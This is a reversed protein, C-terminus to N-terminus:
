KLSYELFKTLENKDLVKSNAYLQIASYAAASGFLLSLYAPAGVKFFLSMAALMNDGTGVKDIVTKCFSPCYYFKNNKVNFYTLGKKGSTIVLHNIVFKKCLVKSLKEISEFKNRLENRLETENIILFNIKKFKNLSHYGINASNIQTNLFLKNSFKTILKATTDTIFGHGYDSVIVLDAKKIKKKIEQNLKKIENFLLNEENLSYLGFIKNYNVSDLYRKKLITPSNKKYIFIKNINKKLNKRVFSEYEKNEGLMSIFDVKKCFVSINNAIAAAGGLYDSSNKPKFTLFPDKGSKGLSECFNYQDIITEGIVLVRNKEIKKLYDKLSNSNYYKQTIKFYNQQDDTFIKVNSNIIKSSSFQVEDTFIIKGKNKKVAKEELFINKTIDSKRIKYDQGKIYYNPKVINIVDIATENNNIFVFDIEKLSSLYQARIKDTFIPKGLGKKVYSDATISVVLVDGFEKAKQFHKIHGFHVIDFVGHCLSVKVKKKKLLNIKKQLKLADLIM